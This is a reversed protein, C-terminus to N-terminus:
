NRIKTFLVWLSTESLSCSSCGAANTKQEKYWCCCLVVKLQSQEGYGTHWALAPFDAWTNDVESHNRYNGHDCLTSHHLQFNYLRSGSACLRARESAQLDTLPDLLVSASAHFYLIIESAREPYARTDRTQVVRSFCGSSGWANEKFM